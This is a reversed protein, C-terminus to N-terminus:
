KFRIQEGEQGNGVSWDVCVCVCSESLSGRCDNFSEEEWRLLYFSFCVDSKLSLRSVNLLMM